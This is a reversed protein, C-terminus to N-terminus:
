YGKLFRNLLFHQSQEFYKQHSRAAFADQRERAVQYVQAVNEAAELMSPDGM